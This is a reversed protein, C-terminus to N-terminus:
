AGRASCCRQAISAELKDENKKSTQENKTITPRDLLAFFPSAAAMIKKSAGGGPYSTGHDTSTPAAIAGTVERQTERTIVEITTVSAASFGGLSWLRHRGVMFM